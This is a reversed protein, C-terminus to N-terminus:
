FELIVKDNESILKVERGLILGRNDLIHGAPFNLIVPYNYEKVLDLITEEATKGFYVKNDKMQTMGGIIIAKLNKLYGSRKLNMMMRDIHYLMEDLDEIFLIKGETKMESPSGVLSYLVSLNGGIIEGKIFGLRTNEQLTDGCAEKYADVSFSILYDEGFIVKRISERSKETKNEIELCMQAHLTEVGLNHIHSHLVTVDSYGIIWKPNKTFSSFDLKDIIRVTGYGGRACWIANINPDDMMEQFDAARLEDSGAFQNEEAGITKGLVSKLGWSKLLELAPKLEEKTIKRATSVIAVTDGKQLTNPTIMFRILVM